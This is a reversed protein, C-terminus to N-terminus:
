FYADFHSSYERKENEYVIIFSLEYVNEYKDRIEKIYMAKVHNGIQYQGKIGISITNNYNTLKKKCVHGLNKPDYSNYYLVKIKKYGVDLFKKNGVSSNDVNFSNLSISQKIDYKIRDEVVIAIEKLENIIMTDRYIKVSFFILLSLLMSIMFVTNIYILAEILIYGDKQAFKKKM